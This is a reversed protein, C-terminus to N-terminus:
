SLQFLLDSTNVQKASEQRNRSPSSLFHDFHGESRLICCTNATHLSRFNAFQEFQKILRPQKRKGTPYRIRRQKRRLRKSIRKLRCERWLMLRLGQLVRDRLAIQGQTMPNGRMHRLNTNLAPRLINQDRRSRLLRNIIQTFQEETGLIRRQHAPGRIQARKRGKVCILWAVVPKPRTFVLRGLTVRLGGFRCSTPNLKGVEARIKGIWRTHRHGVCFTQLHQIQGFRKIRRDNLIGGILVQSKVPLRHRRHQRQLLASLAAINLGAPRDIAACKGFGQRRTQAHSPHNRRRRYDLLQHQHLLSRVQVRRRDVLDHSILHRLLQEVSMNRFQTRDIHPSTIRHQSGELYM